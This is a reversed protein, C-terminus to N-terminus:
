KSEVQSPRSATKLGYHILELLLTELWICVEHIKYDSELEKWTQWFDAACGKEPEDTLEVYISDMPNFIDEYQQFNHFGTFFDKVQLDTFCRERKGDLAALSITDNLILFLSVIGAKQSWLNRIPM